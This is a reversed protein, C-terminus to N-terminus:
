RVFIARYVRPTPADVPAGRRALPRFRPVGGSRESTRPCSHVATAVRWALEGLARSLAAVQAEGGRADVAEAISACDERCAASGRSRRVSWCADLRASGVADAEFSTVDVRVVGDLPTARYWPYPVIRAGLLASLDHGLARAFLTPLPEAWRDVDAYRVETGVRTALEQHQLYGPMAIPGLGIQLSGSPPASDSATAALVYFRTPDPGRRLVCSAELVAVAFLGWAVGRSRRVHRKV